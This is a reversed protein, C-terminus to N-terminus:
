DILTSNLRWWASLRDLIQSAMVVVMSFLSITHMIAIKRNREPLETALRLLRYMGVSFRSVIFTM